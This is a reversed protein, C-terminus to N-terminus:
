RPGSSLPLINTNYAGRGTSAPQLPLCSKEQQLGKRFFKKKSAIEFTLRKETLWSGTSAPHLPLLRKAKELFRSSFLKQQKRRKRNV